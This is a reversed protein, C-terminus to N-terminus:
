QITSKRQDESQHIEEIKEDLSDFLDGDCDVQSRELLHTPVSIYDVSLHNIYVMRGFDDVQLILPYESFASIPEGDTVDEFSAALNCNTVDVLRTQGTEIRYEMNIAMSFIQKTIADNKDREKDLDDKSIVGNTFATEYYEDTVRIAKAVREVDDSPYDDYELGFEDSLAEIIEWDRPDPLQIPTANIYGGQSDDPRFDGYVHCSLYLDAIADRRVFVTRNGLDKITLFAGYHALGSFINQRMEESISLLLPSNGSQFHIAVEGFYLLSPLADESYSCSQIPPHRGLLADSTTELHKALSKLKAEPIESIGSEWRQYTPQTVGVAKAVQMQSEGKQARFKKLKLVM